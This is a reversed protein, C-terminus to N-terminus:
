AFFHVWDRVEKKVGEGVATAVWVAEIMAWLGFAQEQMVPSPMVIACSLM